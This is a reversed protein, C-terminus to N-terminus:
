VNEESGLLSEKEDTTLEICFRAGKSTNTVLLRAELKEEVIKRSMYLGLGSGQKAKKTSFYPDFIREMIEEPIGGATDEICIRRETGNQEMRITIRKEHAAREKLADRANNLINHIVQALGNRFGFIEWADDLDMELAIGEQEFAPRVMEVSKRIADAPRFLSRGEEMRYFDRFDDITASMHEINERSRELFEKMVAENMEGRQFRTFLVQNILALNNLPQRWQHAIMSLLEGMQAQRNQHLMLLEQRRNRELEEAVRQELIEGTQKREKLLEGLQAMAEKRARIEKQLRRNTLYLYFSFPLIIGLAIGLYILTQRDFLVIEHRIYGWKLKLAELWDKPLANVAKSLIVNMVPRDNRGAIGLYYDYGLDRAIKLNDLNYREMYYSARVPEAIAADVRRKSLMQLAELMNKVPVLRAGPYHASLYEEIASGETVAIRGQSLLRDLDRKREAINVIVRNRLTLVQDTFDLYALRHSTKQALFVLDVERRKAAEIVRNWTAFYIFEFKLGTMAGIRRYLDIAFGRPAGDGVKLVQNPITTIGVRLPRKQMGVWHQEQQTLFLKM